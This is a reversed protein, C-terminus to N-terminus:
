HGSGTNIQLGPLQMICLLALSDFLSAASRKTNAAQEGLRRMPKGCATVVQVACGLVNCLVVDVTCITDTHCIMDVNLSLSYHNTAAKVFASNAKACLHKLIHGNLRSICSFGWIYKVLLALSVDGEVILILDDQGIFCIPFASQRINHRVVIHQHTASNVM